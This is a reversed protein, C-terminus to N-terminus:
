KQGETEAPPADGALILYLRRRTEALLRGAQGIQDPSGTRVVQMLAAGMKAAEEFVNRVDDRLDASMAAWPAALEDPHEEVFRRGADTLRFTKRGGGSEESHVLGEDALQQLAPYVAGPSPKWGGGSRENIEQIIQYGNRPEEALLSLIAARVDGKKARPGPGWHGGWGGHGGRGGRGGGRAWPPPGGFPWGGPFGPPGAFGDGPGASRPGGGFGPFGGGHGQGHGEGHGQGPGFGGGRGPFGSAHRM